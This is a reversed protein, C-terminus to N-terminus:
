KIGVFSHHFHEQHRVVESVHRDIVYGEQAMTDEQHGHLLASLPFSLHRRPGSHQVPLLNEAVQYM